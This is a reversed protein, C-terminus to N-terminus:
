GTQELFTSFVWGSVERDGGLLRIYVWADVSDPWGQIREVLVAEGPFLTNIVNDVESTPGSRVNVSSIVRMTSGVTIPVHEWVQQESEYEYYVYDEEYYEYYEDYENDEPEPEYPEPEPEYPEYPEYPEPEPEYPEPEPEYPEPEPEYVEEVNVGLEILRSRIIANSTREYGLQLIQQAVSMSGVSILLDAADLYVFHNGPEVDVLAWAISANGTLTLGHWLIDTADNTQGVGSFARAAGLYARVNGPEIEIADLFHRQARLYLRDNLYREGQEILREASPSSIFLFYIVVGFSMVIIATIMGLVFKTKSSM